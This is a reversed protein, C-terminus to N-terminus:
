SSRRWESLQPSSEPTIVPGTLAAQGNALRSAYEDRQQEAETLRRILTDKALMSRAQNESPMGRVPLVREVGRFCNLGNRVMAAETDTVDADFVVIVARTNPNM